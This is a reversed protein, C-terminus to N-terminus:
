ANEGGSTAATEPTFKKTAINFTGPIMAGSQSFKGSIVVKEGGDGKNDSVEISVVCKRASYENAKGTIPSFKDVRIYETKADDGTKQLRGIDYIFRIGKTEADDKSYILEAEFSWQPEYKTIDASAAVQNIYTTSDSKASPSEDLTTFGDGLLM